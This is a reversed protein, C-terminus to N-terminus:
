SVPRKPAGSRGIHKKQREGGPLKKKFREARKRLRDEVVPRKTDREPLLKAIEAWPMGSTRLSHALEGTFVLWQGVSTPVRQTDDPTELRKSIAEVARLLDTGLDAHSPEEPDIGQAALDRDMESLAEILGKLRPRFLRLENIARRGAARNAVMYAGYAVIIGRIVVTTLPNKSKPLKREDSLEVLEAVSVATTEGRKKLWRFLRTCTAKVEALDIPKPATVAGDNVLKWRSDCRVCGNLRESRTCGHLRDSLILATRHRDRFPRRTCSACKDELEHLEMEAQRRVPDNSECQKSGHGVGARLFHRSTRAPFLQRARASDSEMRAPAAYVEVTCVSVRASTASRSRFLM